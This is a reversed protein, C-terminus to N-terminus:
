MDFSGRYYDLVLTRLVYEYQAISLNLRSSDVNNKAIIYEVINSVGSNFRIENVRFSEEYAKVQDQLVLFKDYATEMNIYAQEISKKYSLKTQKLENEASELEIKSIKVNNRARAGNFLPINVSVGYSTNLNNNFQDGYSIKESSFIAQDAFVDYDTGNINVYSGTNVTNTGTQNFVEAASSYNTFLGGFLSIRPFYDAIAISVGSEAAEQRLEKAKFTPLNALSEEYVDESSIPYLEFKLSAATNQFDADLETEVGMLLFLNIIAAKLNNEATLVAMQDSSFQGKMDTYDAPNGVEQQYLVELRDVQQGTVELRSKALTLQDRTNLIQLYALTVKLRLDQKAEAIEMESANLNQRSQKITNKLKFGNFVTASLSLAATSYTLEQDIYDNTYPDISRGDTIGLEYSANVAPTIDGWSRNLDVRAADANLHSGKLDLNNEFAIAICDELTYVKEQANCLFLNLLFTSLILIIRIM